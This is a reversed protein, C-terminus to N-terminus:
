ETMPKSPKAAVDLTKSEQAQDPPSSKEEQNPTEQGGLERYEGFEAFLFVALAQINPFLRYNGSATNELSVLWGERNNNRVMWLRLLYSAYGDKSELGQIVRGHYQTEM